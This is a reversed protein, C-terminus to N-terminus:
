RAIRYEESFRGVVGRSDVAAVAIAEYAQWNVTAMAGSNAEIVTFYQDFILSNPRRLGVVYRSADPVSEWVLASNGGGVDRLVINRPPVPGGGLAYLLGMITRTSKLLYAAEVGDVTDRGERKPTDELSEIIRSSPYGKEEFSEHDGYRGERDIENQMALNLDLKHYYAIFNLTRAFQRSRSSNPPASFLRLDRDNVNGRADNNSGITDLNIMGIVPLNHVMIYDQVFAKSGQRGVEEASFLVFVITARMPSTSLVRAMELIAAVGSGNDDAGPAFSTADTLDDTRSDYHAGVVIIGAEASTGQIYGIINRQTSAIGNYSATFPQEFTVFKGGSQAQIQKFTESIYNAAAGVGRTLSQTSSNVHRTHFGVLANIHAMLRESEIRNMLNFLEIDVSTQQPAGQTSQNPVNGGQPTAYSLPPQPTPIDTKRPLLTPPAEQAGLSCALLVMSLWIILLIHNRPTPKM